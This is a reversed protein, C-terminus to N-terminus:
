NSLKQWKYPGDSAAADNEGNLYPLHEFRRASDESCGLLIRETTRRNLVSTRHAAFETLEYILSMEKCNDPQRRSIDENGAAREPRGAHPRGSPPPATQCSRRGFRERRFLDIPCSRTGFFSSFPWDSHWTCEM